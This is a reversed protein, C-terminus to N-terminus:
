LLLLRCLLPLPGAELFAPGEERPMSLSELLRLRHWVGPLGRLAGHTELLRLSPLDVLQRLIVPGDEVPLDEPLELARLCPLGGFRVRAARSGRQLVLATLRRATTLDLTAAEDAWCVVLEQLATLRGLSAKSPDHARLRTGRVRLATLSAPLDALDDLAVLCGSLEMRQLRGLPALRRLQGGGVMWPGEVVLRSLRCLDSLNALPVLDPTIRGSGRKRGPRLPPLTLVPGNGRM